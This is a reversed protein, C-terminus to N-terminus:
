SDDDGNLHGHKPPIGPKWVCILCGSRHSGWQQESQCLGASTERSEGTRVRTGLLWLDMWDLSGLPGLSLPRSRPLSECRYSCPNTSSTALDLQFHIFCCRSDQNMKIIQLIEELKVWNKEWCKDHLFATEVQIVWTYIFINHHDNDHHLRQICSITYSMIIYLLYVDLSIICISICLICYICYLIPLIHIIEGDVVVVVVKNEMRPKWSVFFM